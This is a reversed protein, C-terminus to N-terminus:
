WAGVQAGEMSLGANYRRAVVSWGPSGGNLTWCEVASWGLSGGNLTWCEVASSGRELGPERWQSDLM